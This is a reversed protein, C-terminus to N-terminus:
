GGSSHLSMFSGLLSWHYVWGVLRCFWLFCYITIIKFWLSNSHNLICCYIYSFCKRCHKGWRYYYIVELSETTLRQCIPFLCFVPVVLFCKWFCWSLLMFVGRPCNSLTPVSYMATGGYGNEEEKLTVSNKVSCIVILIFVVNGLRGQLYTRMVLDPCLFIVLLVTHCNIPFFFFFIGPLSCTLNNPGKARWIVLQRSNVISQVM